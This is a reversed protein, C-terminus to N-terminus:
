QLIELPLLEPEIFSLTTSNAYIMPNESIAFRSIHGGDKDRSLFHGRGSIRRLVVSQLEPLM